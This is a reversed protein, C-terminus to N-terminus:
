DKTKTLKGISGVDIAKKDATAWRISYDTVAGVEFVDTKETVTIHLTNGEITYTGRLDRILTMRKTNTIRHQVKYGEFTFSYICDYYEGMWTGQLETQTITSPIDDDKSCGMLMLPILMLLFLIQKNM